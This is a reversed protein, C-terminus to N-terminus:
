AGANYRMLIEVFIIPSRGTFHLQYKRLSLEMGLRMRLRAIRFPNFILLGPLMGPNRCAPNGLWPTTSYMRFDLKIEEKVKTSKINM